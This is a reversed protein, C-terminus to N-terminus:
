TWPHLSGDRIATHRRTQYTANYKKNAVVELKVSATRNAVKHFLDSFHTIALMFTGNSLPTCPLAVTHVIHCHFSSATTLIYMLFTACKESM